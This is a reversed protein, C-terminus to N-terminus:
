VVEKPHSWLWEDVWEPAFSRRMIENWVDVMLCQMRHDAARYIAMIQDRQESGRKWASFDDSYQYTVDHQRVLTAFTELVDPQQVPQNM